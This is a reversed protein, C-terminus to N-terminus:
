VKIYGALLIWDVQGLGGWNERASLEGSAVIAVSVKKALRWCEPVPIRITAWGYPEISHVYHYVKKWETWEKGWSVKVYIDVSEIGDDFVRLYLDKIVSGKRRYLTVIGARDWTSTGEGSYWAARYSRMVGGVGWIPAWGWLCHGIESEPNGIDVQDIVGLVCKGGILKKYFIDADSGSGCYDTKDVWAIHATGDPGVGLSPSWSDDTSETSVVKTATWHSLSSGGLTTEASNSASVSVINPMVLALVFYLVAFMLVTKKRKL